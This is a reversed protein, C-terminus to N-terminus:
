LCHAMLMPLDLKEAETANETNLDTFKEAILGIMQDKYQVLLIRTSFKKEFPRGGLLLCSDIVPISRGHYTMIGAISRNSSPPPDLQVLPVIEAILSTDITYIKEGTRIAIQKM